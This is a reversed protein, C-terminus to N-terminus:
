NYLSTVTSFLFQYEYNKKFDDFSKIILIINIGSMVECFNDLFISAYVNKIRLSEFQKYFVRKKLRKRM